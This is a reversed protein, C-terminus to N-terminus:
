VPQMTRTRRLEGIGGATAFVAIVTAGYMAFKVFIAAWASSGHGNGYPLVVLLGAVAASATILLLRLPLMEVLPKGLRRAIAHTNWAESLLFAVVSGAAAGALGFYWAGALSGGFAVLLGAANVVVATKGMDLIPMAYGIALSQLGIVVLYARMVPVAALYRETYVLAIIDPALVFLLGALPVLILTAASSGKVLLRQVSALNGAAFEISLRPLMTNNIPQRILSAVPLVVVGISFAAFTATSFLTAAIWQDSQVRMAFLSVGLALPLAYQLQTALLRPRCYLRGGGPRTALYAIVVLGRIATDVVLAAVVWAISQTLIAATSILSARMLTIALDTYFHWLIRGEAIALTTTISLLVSLGLFVSSMGHSAQFLRDLMPGGLASLPSAALAAICGMIALYVLVNGIISRKQEESASPLYYYLSQPMFAPALGLVTGLMLILLRYQGFEDTDLQRVLVIPVLFQLTFELMGGATLLAASRSVGMNGTSKGM